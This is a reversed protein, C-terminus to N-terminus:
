GQLKAFDDWIKEVFNFNHFRNKLIDIKFADEFVGPINLSIM